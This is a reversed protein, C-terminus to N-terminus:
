ISIATRRTAAKGELSAREPRSGNVGDQVSTASAASAQYSNTLSASAINDSPAVHSNSSASTFCLPESVALGALQWDFGDGCYGDRQLNLQVNNPVSGNMGFLM